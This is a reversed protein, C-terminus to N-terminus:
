ETTEPRQDKTGPGNDSIEQRQDPLATHLSLSFPLRIGDQSPFPGDPWPPPRPNLAVVWGTQSRSRRREAMWVEWSPSERLLQWVAPTRPTIYPLFHLTRRAKRRVM